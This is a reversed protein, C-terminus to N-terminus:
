EVPRGGPRPMPMPVFTGLALDRAPPTANTGLSALVAALKEAGETIITAYRSKAAADREALTRFRAVLEWHTQAGADRLTVTNIVPPPGGAPRTDYDANKWVLKEPKVVEVFVFDMAFREGDAMKMVHRWRGGPRVDMECVPNEFGHGGYWKVVHRPDTFVAWVLDRPADFTRSMVIVAEAASTADVKMSM